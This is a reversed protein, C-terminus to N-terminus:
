ADFDDDDKVTVTDGDEDEESVETLMEAILEFEDESIELFNESEAHIDKYKPQSELDVTSAYIAKALDVIYADVDVPFYRITSKKRGRGKPKKAPGTITVVAFFMQNEQAYYIFRDGRRIKTLWRGTAPIGVQKKSASLEEVTMLTTPRIYFRTAIGVKKKKRKTTTRAREAEQETVINEWIRQQISISLEATSGNRFEVTMKPDNIEIVTYEGKRNAYEEGIEFVVM